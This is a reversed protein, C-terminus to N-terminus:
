VRLGWPRPFPIVAETQRGGNRSPIGMTWSRRPIGPAPRPEGGYHFGALHIVADCPDLRRELVEEMKRYDTPFNTQEIPYAGLSLMADKVIQRYSGLDASTSSIFVDKRLPM